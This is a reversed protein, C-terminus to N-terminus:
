KIETMQDISKNKLFEKLEEKLFDERDLAFDINVKLYGIQNGIDYYKGKFNCAYFTDTEMIKM